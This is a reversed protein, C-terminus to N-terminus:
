RHFEDVAKRLAVVHMHADATQRLREPYAADDITLLVVKAAQLTQDYQDINLAALRTLASRMGEERCGIALLLEEDLALLADDLTGCKALLKDYKKKNLLNLWSWALATARHM